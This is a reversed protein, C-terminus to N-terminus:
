LILLLWIRLMFRCQPRVFSSVFASASLKRPSRRRALTSERRDDQAFRLVECVFTPNRQYCLVNGRSTRPGESREPHCLFLRAILHFLLLGGVTVREGIQFIPAFRRAIDIRRDPKANEAVRDRM